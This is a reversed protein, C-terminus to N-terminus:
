KAVMKRYAPAFGTLPLLIRIPQGKLNHLTVVMRAGRRLRELQPKSVPVTAFCGKPNCTRYALKMAPAKDIQYTVGATLDTGFPTRIVMHPLPKEGAMHVTVGLLLQGTKRLYTGFFVRCPNAAKVAFSGCVLSWGGDTPRNSRNAPSSAPKGVAPNGPTNGPKKAPKKRPKEPVTRYPREAASNEIGVTLMGTAIAATLRSTIQFHRRYPMGTDEDGAM